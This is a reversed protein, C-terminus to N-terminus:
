YWVFLMLYKKGSKLYDNLVERLVTLRELYYDNYGIDGFFFGDLTPVTKKCTDIDGAKYAEIAKEVDQLLRVVTDKELYININNEMNYMDHEMLWGLLMNYKRLNYRPEGTLETERDTLEMKRMELERLREKLKSIEEDKALEEGRKVLIDVVDRGERDCENLIPRYVCMLMKAYTRIDMEKDNGYTLDYLVIDVLKSAIGIECREVEEGKLEKVKECIERIADKYKDGVLEIMKELVDDIENSVSMLKGEIEEIKDKENVFFTVIDLGM